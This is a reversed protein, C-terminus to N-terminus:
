GDRERKAVDVIWDRFVKIEPRQDAGIPYVLYYGFGTKLRRMLPAVLAKSKLHDAVLSGQGLAIGQGELAARLLLSSDGIFTGHHAVDVADDEDVVGFAQLWEPWDPWPSSFKSDLRLLHHNKLDEPSRLPNLLLYGPSCVPFIEDEFLNVAELGPYRGEGFRIGIDAEGRAIDVLEKAPDLLVDMADPLARYRPLRKILWNAAFAPEVTLRLRRMQPRLRMREVGQQLLRLGASLHDRGRLGQETLSITNGYRSVLKVGLDAELAKVQQSIAGPTVHLEMAALQISRLRAVSEFVRLTGLPPMRTPHATLKRHSPGADQPPKAARPKYQGRAKRAPPNPSNAM